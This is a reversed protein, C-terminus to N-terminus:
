SKPTEKRVGYLALLASRAARQADAFRERTAVSASGESAVVNVVCREFEDVAQQVQARTPADERCRRLGATFGDLMLAEERSGHTNTWEGSDYLYDLDNEHTERRAAPAEPLAALRDVIALLRSAASNPAIYHDLRNAKADEVFEREADTLRTASM